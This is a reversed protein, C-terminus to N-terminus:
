SLPAKPTWTSGNWEWTDALYSTPGAGGFLVTVARSSDYCLGHYARAPPSTAPTMAFWTNGDWEWTDAFYAGFVFPSVITYGGFLVTRGRAADFALALNERPWLLPPTPRQLWSNGDWEWTDGLQAGSFGGFLVVRNRVSDYALGPDRRPPPSS